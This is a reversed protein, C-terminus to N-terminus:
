GAPSARPPAPTAGQSPSIVGPRAAGAATRDADILQGARQIPVPTSPLSEADISEESDMGSDLALLGEARGWFSLPDSVQLILTLIGELGPVRDMAEFIGKM